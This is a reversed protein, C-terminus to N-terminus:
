EMLYDNFNMQFQKAVYRKIIRAWFKACKNMTRVNPHGVRHWEQHVCITILGRRSHM